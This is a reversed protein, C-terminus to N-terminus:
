SMLTLENLIVVVVFGRNKMTKCIINDINGECKQNSSFNKDSTLALYFQSKKTPCM